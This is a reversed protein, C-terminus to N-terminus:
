HDASKRYPNGSYLYGCGTTKKEPCLLQEKVPAASKHPTEKLLEVACQVTKGAASELDAATNIYKIKVVGTKVSICKVFILYKDGKERVTGSIFNDAGLLTGISSVEGAGLMGNPSLSKERLLKGLQERDVLKIGDACSLEASVIDNFLGGEINKGDTQLPNFIIVSGASVLASVMISLMASLTLKCNSM